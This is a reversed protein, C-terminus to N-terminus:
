MCPQDPQADDSLQLGCTGKRMDRCRAVQQRPAPQTDADEVSFISAVGQLHREKYSFLVGCSDSNSLAAIWREVQSYCERWLAEQACAGYGQQWFVFSWCGYLAASACVPM